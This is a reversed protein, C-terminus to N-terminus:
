FVVETLNQGHIQRACLPYPVSSVSEQAQYTRTLKAPQQFIKRLGEVPSLVFPSSKINNIIQREDQPERLMGSKKLLGNTRSSLSKVM